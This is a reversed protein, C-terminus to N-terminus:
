FVVMKQAALSSGNIARPQVFYIGASLGNTDILTTARDRAVVRGLADTIMLEQVQDPVSVKLVDGKRILNSWLHWDHAPLLTSKSYEGTREGTEENGCIGIEAFRAGASMRVIHLARIKRGDTDEIVPVWKRWNSLNSEGWDSVIGNEDETRIKVMGSSNSDFLYVKNVQKLGGLDIRLTAPYVEPNWGPFWESLAATLNSTSCDTFDPIDAPYLDECILEAATLFKNQEDKIAEPGHTWSDACIDGLM